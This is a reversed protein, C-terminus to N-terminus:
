VYGQNSRESCKEVILSIWDVRFNAIKRIGFLLVTSFSIWDMNWWSPTILSPLGIELSVTIQSKVPHSFIFNSELNQFVFYLHCYSASISLSFICFEKFIYRVVFLNTEITFKVRIQQMYRYIYKVKLVKTQGIKFQM